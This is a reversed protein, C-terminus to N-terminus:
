AYHTARKPKGDWLSVSGGGTYDRLSFGYEIGEIRSAKVKKRIPKFNTDPETPTEISEMRDSNYVSAAKMKQITVWAGSRGTIFYFDVNTQEFGWTDVLIAGPEFAKKVEPTVTSFYGPKEVQAPAQDSVTKVKFKAIVQGQSGLVQVEISEIEALEAKLKAVQDQCLKVYSPLLNSCLSLNKEIKAIAATIQTAKM